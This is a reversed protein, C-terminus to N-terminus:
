ANARPRLEPLQKQAAESASRARFGGPGDRTVFTKSMRDHWTLKEEDAISWAFGLGLSLTSLITGLARTRRQGATPLEGDFNLVRLGLWHMGTTGGLYGVYFIWYFCVIGLFAVAISRLGDPDTLTTRGVIFFV